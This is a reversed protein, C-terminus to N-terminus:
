DAQKRLPGGTQENYSEKWWLVHDSFSVLHSPNSSPIYLTVTTPVVRGDEDYGTGQSLTPKQTRM